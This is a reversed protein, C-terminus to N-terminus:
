EPRAPPVQPAVEVYGINPLRSMDSPPTTLPLICRKYPPHKASLMEGVSTRLLWLATPDAKKFQITGADSESTKLIDGALDVMKKMGAAVAYRPQGCADGLLTLYEVDQQGQRFAKVRVSAAVGGQYPIFLGTNSGTALDGAGGVTQWPVVGSAGDAWVNLCWIVPQTNPNKPDNASGYPSFYSRGWLVQDDAKQRMREQGGGGIVEMDLVGWLMNRQAVGYSVDARYWMKAQGRVSDVAQHYLIGYWRLAWFDQTNCPEDM